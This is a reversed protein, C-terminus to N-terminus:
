QNKVQDLVTIMSKLFVTQSQNDTVKWEMMQQLAKNRHLELEKETQNSRLMRQFETTMAPIRLIASM